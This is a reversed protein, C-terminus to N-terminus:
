GKPFTRSSARPFCSQLELLGMGGKCPQIPDLTPDEPLTGERHSCPATQRSEVGGLQLDSGAWYRMM